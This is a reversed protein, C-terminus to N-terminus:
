RTVGPCPGTSRTPAWFAPGGLILIRLSSSPGPHPGKGAAPSAGQALSRGAALSGATLLSTRLFKRRTPTM